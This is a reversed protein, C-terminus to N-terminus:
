KVTNVEGGPARLGPTKPRQVTVLSAGRGWTLGNGGWNGIWVVCGHAFPV